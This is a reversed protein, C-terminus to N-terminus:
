KEFVIFGGEELAHIPLTKDGYNKLEEYAKDWNIPGRPDDSGYESKFHPIFKVPVIGLGDMCERWDCAWFSSSLADSGASSGAIVKNEWIKPLDFKKLWHQLLTDDGGMIMITDCDKIQEEFTNPIALVFSPKIESNINKVFGIKYKKFNEEWDERKQAFFCFLVRPNNGLGKIAENFFAAGKDASNTIGGAHLIYKTM